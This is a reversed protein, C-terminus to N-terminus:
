FQKFFNLNLNLFANSIIFYKYEAIIRTQVIVQCRRIEFVIEHIKNGSDNLLYM